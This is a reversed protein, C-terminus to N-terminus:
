GRIAETPDLAAARLAPLLGAFASFVGCIVVIWPLASWPLLVPTDLVGGLPTALAAGALAGLAAVAVGAGFSETVILLAVSGRSAGVARRLGIETRRETVSLMRAYVMSGLGVAALLGAAVLVYGRVRDLFRRESALLESPLVLRVAGREVIAAGLLRSVQPAVASVASEGSTAVVVCASELLDEGDAWGDGPPVLIVQPRADGLLGLLGASLGGQPAMRAIVTAVADGLRITGTGATGRVAGSALDEAVVALMGSHRADIATPLRGSRTEVEFIGFFDRDVLLAGARTGGAGPVEVGGISAVRAVRRVEPLSRIAQLTQTSLDRLGQEAPFQLYLNGLGLARMRATVDADVGAVAALSVVLGAAILAVPSSALVFRTRERWLTRGADLLMLAPRMM